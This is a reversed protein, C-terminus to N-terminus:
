GIWEGQYKCYNRGKHIIKNNCEKLNKCIYRFDTSYEKKMIGRERPIESRHIVEGFRNVCNEITKSTMKEM